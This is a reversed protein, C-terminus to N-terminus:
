CGTERANHKAVKNEEKRRNRWEPSKTTEKHTSEKEEERKKETEDRQKNM